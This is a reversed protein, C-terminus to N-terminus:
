SPPYGEGDVEVLRVHEDGKWTGWLLLRRPNYPDFIAQSTPLPLEWARLMEGNADYLEVSVHSGGNVTLTGLALMRGGELVTYDALTQLSYGHGKLAGEDFVPAKRHVEQWEKPVCRQVVKRPADKGDLLFIASQTTTGAYLFGDGGRRLRFHPPQGEDYVAIGLDERSWEMTVESQRALTTGHIGFKSALLLRDGLNIAHDLEWGRVGDLRYEEEAAGFVMVSPPSDDVVFTGGGDRGFGLVTGRYELPGPGKRGWLATEQLNDDLEVVQDAYRDYVLWGDSTREALEPYHEVSSAVVQVALPSRELDCAARLKDPPKPFSVPLTVSEQHPSAWAAHAPAPLCTALSGALLLGRAVRTGRSTVPNTAGTSKVSVATPKSEPTPKSEM